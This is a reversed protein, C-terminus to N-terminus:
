MTALTLMLRISLDTTHIASFWGYYWKKNKNIDAFKSVEANSFVTSYEATTYMM